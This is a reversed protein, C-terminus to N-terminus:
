FPNEDDVDTEEKEGPLVSDGDAELGRNQDSPDQQGFLQIPKAGRVSLVVQLDHM